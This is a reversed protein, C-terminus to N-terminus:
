DEVDGLGRAVMDKFLYDVIGRGMVDEWTEGNDEALRCVEVFLGRPLRVEVEDPGCLLIVDDDPLDQPGTM